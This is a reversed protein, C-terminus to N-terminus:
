NASMRLGRAHVYAKAGIKRAILEAQTYPNWRFVPMRDVESETRVYLMPVDAVPVFFFEHGTQQDIETQTEYAVGDLPGGDCWVRNVIM